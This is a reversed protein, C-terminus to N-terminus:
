RDISARANISPTKAGFPDLGWFLGNGGQPANKPVRIQMAFAERKGPGIPRAHACNLVHVDVQGAPVLQQVYAPCRDFHVTDHSTNELVVTFRLMEGPKGHVPQNAVTAKIAGTANTWPATPKVKATEFPSVEIRSPSKPDLCAPVANYDADIHGNGNPLTIRVASPPVREKGAIQPDCWNTWTVTLGAIEGPRVALLSSLPYATDPFIVPPRGIPANVQQPEGEHVLKVNPRGELRCEQDSKNKLAIVAIGGGKGNAVFEVKGTVALDAARCAASAPSREVLEAPQSPIWPVVPGDVNLDATNSGGCGAMLVLPTVLATALKFRM